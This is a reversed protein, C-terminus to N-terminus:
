PLGCSFQSFNTVECWCLSYPTVLFTVFWCVWFLSYLMATLLDHVSINLIQPKKQQWCTTFQYISSKLTKEEIRKRERKKSPPVLRHVLWWNQCNIKNSKKRRFTVLIALATWHRHTLCSHNDTTSLKFHVWTWLLGFPIFNSVFFELNPPNKKVGVVLILYVM